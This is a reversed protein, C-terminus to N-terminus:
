FGDDYVVNGGQERLMRCLPCDDEFFDDPDFERVRRALEIPDPNDLHILNFKGIRTVQADEGFIRKLEADSERDQAQNIVTWQDSM